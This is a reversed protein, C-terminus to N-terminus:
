PIRGTAAEFARQAGLIAVAVVAALSLARGGRGREALVALLLGGGAAVPVLTFYHHKLLFNFFLDLGSFLVLVGGWALLVTRTSKERVLGLGLLGFVPVVRSGFTYDLKELARVVHRLLSSAAAEATGGGERGALLRPVTERFFPWTWHVYYLVFAAAAAIAAAIVM